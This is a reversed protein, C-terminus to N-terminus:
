RLLAAHLTRQSRASRATVPFSSSAGSQLLRVFSDSRALGADRAPRASLAVAALASARPWDRSLSCHTLLLVLVESHAERLSPMAGCADFRADEGDEFLEAGLTPRM